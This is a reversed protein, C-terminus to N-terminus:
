RGPSVKVRRLRSRRSLRYSMRSRSMGCEHRGTALSNSSRRLCRTVAPSASSRRNLLFDRIREINATIEPAYQDFHKTQEEIVRLTAPSLFLQEIAAERSLGRAAHRRATNLGENVLNTRYAARTQTMVDLLRAKDRAEM